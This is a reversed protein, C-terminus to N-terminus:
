KGIVWTMVAETQSKSTPDGNNHSAKQYRWVRLRGPHSRAVKLRTSQRRSKAIKPSDICTPMKARMSTPGKEQIEILRYM